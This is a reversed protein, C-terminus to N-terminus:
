WELPRDDPWTHVALLVGTALRVAIREQVFVNSVGRTPGLFLTEGKLHYKLGATVIGTARATIPLLSLLDGPRGALEVKDKVAVARTHRDLVAADIGDLLPAALLLLNALEHDLRGGLAGLVAIHRAGHHLAYHLALELDTEDKEPPFNLTEGGGARWTALLDSPLSDMDGLIATPRRGARLLAGAAGDAAVIMDAAKLLPSFLTLDPLVGNAVVVAAPGATRGQM